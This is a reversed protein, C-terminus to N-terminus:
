IFCNPICLKLNQRQAENVLHDENLLVNQSFIDELEKQTACRYHGIIKTLWDPQELNVPCEHLNIPVLKKWLMHALEAELSLFYYGLWM